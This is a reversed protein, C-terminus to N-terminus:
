DLPLRHIDLRLIDEEEWRHRHHLQHEQKDTHHQHSRYSYGKHKHRHRMSNRHRMTVQHHKIQLRTICQRHLEPRSLLVKIGVVVEAEAEAEEQRIILLWVLVPYHRHVVVVVM